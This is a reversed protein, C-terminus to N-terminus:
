LVHIMTLVAAGGCLEGEGTELLMKLADSDLSQIAKKVKQDRIQTTKEDKYHSMDSSAIILIRKDSEQIIDTLAKGLMPALAYDNILIPM